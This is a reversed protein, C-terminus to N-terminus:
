DCIRWSPPTLELNEWKNGCRHCTEMDPRRMKGCNQCTVLIEKPRTIRYTIYAPLGFLFTAIVWWKIATGSLGITKADKRVRLMLWVALILSPGMFILAMIQKEPIRNTFARGLMGELSDPLIFLTRHGASAEICDRCLFSAIEFVVPQLNELLFLSTRAMPSNRDYVKATTSGDSARSYGRCILKGNPDFVAVALATGERSLSSVCMGFYRVEKTEWSRDKNINVLVYYVPDLQYGLLDRPKAAADNPRDTFLSDPLSLYGVNRISWDVTNVEYIQGSKDLVTLYDTAGIFRIWRENPETVAPLFAHKAQWEGNVDKVEPSTFGGMYYDGERIAVPEINTDRSLEPGVNIRGNRYNILYFRHQRVDYIALRKLLPYSELIPEEFRGLSVSATESVGNPGAFYIKSKIVTKATEGSKVKPPIESVSNPGTQYIPYSYVFQGSHKNFFLYSYEGEYYYYIGDKTSFQRRLKNWIFARIVGLSESQIYHNDMSFQVASLKMNPDNSIGAEAYTLIDKTQNPSGEGPVLGSPCITVKRWDEPVNGILTWFCSLRGFFLIVSYLVLVIFGTAIVILIKGIKSNM